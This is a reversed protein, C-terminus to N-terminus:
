AVLYQEYKRDINLPYDGPVTPHIILPDFFLTYFLLFAPSQINM